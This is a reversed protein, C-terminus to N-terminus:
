KLKPYSRDSHEALSKGNDDEYFVTRGTDFSSSLPGFVSKVINRDSIKCRWTRLPRYVLRSVTTVTGADFINIIFLRIFLSFSIFKEGWGLVLFFYAGTHVIDGLVQIFLLLFRRDSFNCRHNRFIIVGDIHSSIFM